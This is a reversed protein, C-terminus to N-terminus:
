RRKLEVLRAWNPGYAAPVRSGKGADPELANVYTGGGAFPELARRTRRAWAINPAAEQGPEWIGIV